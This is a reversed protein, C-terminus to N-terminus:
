HGICCFGEESRAFSHSFNNEISMRDSLIKFELSCLAFKFKETLLLVHTPDMYYVGLCKIRNSFSFEVKNAELDFIHLLHESDVFVLKEGQPNDVFTFSSIKFNELTELKVLSKPALNRLISFFQPFEENKTKIALFKDSPSIHLSSSWGKFTGLLDNTSQKSDTVWVRLAENQGVGGM